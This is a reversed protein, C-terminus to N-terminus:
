WCWTGRRSSCSMRTPLLTTMSPRFRCSNAPLQVGERSPGPGGMCGTGSWAKHPEQSSRHGPAQPHQELEGTPHCANYSHPPKGDPCTRGGEPCRPCHGALQPDPWPKGQVHVGPAPGRTYGRQQGGCHRESCLLDGGGRGAPLEPLSCPGHAPPSHLPTPSPNQGLELGAQRLRGWPFQLHVSFLCCMSCAPPCCVSLFLSFLCPRAGPRVSAAEGAGTDGPDQAGAALQTGGVM